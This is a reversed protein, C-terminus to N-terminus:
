DDIRREYYKGHSNVFGKQEYFPQSHNAAFLKIRSYQCTGVLYDLISSGHGKLRHEPDVWLADLWMTDEFYDFSVEFLGVPTHGEFAVTPHDLCNLIFDNPYRTQWRRVTDEGYEFLDTTATSFILDM